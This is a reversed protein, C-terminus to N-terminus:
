MLPSNSKVLWLLYLMLGCCSQTLPAPASLWPPSAPLYYTSYWKYKMVLDKTVCRALSTKLLPTTDKFFPCAVLIYEMWMSSYLLHVKWILFPMCVATQLTRTSELLQLRLNLTLHITPNGAQWMKQEEEM